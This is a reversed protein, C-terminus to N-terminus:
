RGAPRRGSHWPRGSSVAAVRARRYLGLASVALALGLTLKLAVVPALGALAAGLNAGVISGLAMPGAVERLLARDDFAGRRWHRVLGVAVTPLSILLSATGATKIDVAFLLVLAPIILEGGAVGLLSSVVGIVVGCGVGAALRLVPDHALAFTPAAPLLTEGILVVAILFLMLAIVRELLRDSMGALWGAGIWAAAMSGLGITLIEVLHTSLGRPDLVLLRGLLAASVTILSVLLNLPVAVRASLGFWGILMPLRFEAGGLGILGGLTGVAAGGGCAYWKSRVAM